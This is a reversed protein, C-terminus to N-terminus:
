RPPAMNWEPGAAYRLGPPTEKRRRWRRRLAFHAGAPGPPGSYQGPGPGGPPRLSGFVAPSFFPVGPRWGIRHNAAQGPPAPQGSGSRHTEATEHNRGVPPVKLRPSRAFMPLGADQQGGQAAQRRKEMQHFLLYGRWGSQKRGPEAGRLHFGRDLFLGLLSPTRCLAGGVRRSAKM